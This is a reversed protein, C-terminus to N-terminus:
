RKSLTSDPYSLSLSVWRSTTRRFSVYLLAWHPQSAEFSIIMLFAIEREREKESERARFDSSVDSRINQVSVDNIIGKNQFFILLSLILKKKFFLIKRASFSSRTSAVNLLKDNKRQRLWSKDSLFFILFLSFVLVHSLSLFLIPTLSHRWVSSIM